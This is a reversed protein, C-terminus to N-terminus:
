TQPYSLEGFVFGISGTLLLTAPATMRQQLHRLLCSSRNTVRQQRHIVQREAERIQTNLSKSKCSYLFKFRM